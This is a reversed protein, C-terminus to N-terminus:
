ICLVRLCGLVAERTTRSLCVALMSLMSFIQICVYFFVRHGGALGYFIGRHGGAVDGSGSGDCEIEMHPHEIRKPNRHSHRGPTGNVTLVGMYIYMYIYIYDYMYLHIYIYLSLYIHTYICRCICVHTCICMYINFLVHIKYHIHM